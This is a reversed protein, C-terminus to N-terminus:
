IQPSGASGPARDAAQSTHKERKSRDRIRRGKEYLAALNGDPASCNTTAARYGSKIAKWAKGSLTDVKEDLGALCRVLELPILCSYLEQWAFSVPRRPMQLAAAQRLYAIAKGFEQRRLRYHQGLYFPAEAREPDLAFARSWWKTSCALDSLYRECVEGAKLMANYQEEDIKGAPALGGEMSEHETEARRVFLELAKHMHAAGQGRDKEGLARALEQQARLFIAGADKNPEHRRACGEAAEGKLCTSASAADVVAAGAGPYAAELWPTEGTCDGKVVMGHARLREFCVKYGALPVDKMLDGLFIESHLMFNNEVVYAEAHPFRGTAWQRAYRYEGFFMRDNVWRPLESHFAPVMAAGHGIDIPDKYRVDLRFLGVREYRTGSREMAGWVREISHWQKIMSDMATPWIWQMGTPFFQRFHTVNRARHFDQETDTVLTLRPSLLQVDDPFIPANIEKNIPNRNTTSSVNYTHAFLDCGSNVSVVHELISPMAVAKFSRALGFFLLACPAASRVAKDASARGQWSVGPPPPANKAPSSHSRANRALCDGVSEGCALAPLVAGCTTTLPVLAGRALGLGSSAVASDKLALSYFPKAWVDVQPVRPWAVRAAVAYMKEKEAGKGGFHIAVPFSAPPNSRKWRRCMDVLVQGEAMRGCKTHRGNYGVRKKATFGIEEDLQMGYASLFLRSNHDIGMQLAERLPQGAREHAPPFTYRAYLHCILAQDGGVVYPDWPGLNEPPMAEINQIPGVDRTVRDVFTTREDRAAELLAAVEPLFGVMVGSNLWPMATDYTPEPWASDCAANKYMLSERAPSCGKESSFLIKQKSELTRKVLKFPSGTVLVDYADVFFVLSHTSHDGDLGTDIADVFDALGWLKDLYRDREFQRQRGTGVVNLRFGWAAASAAMICFGKNALDTAYTVMYVRFTQSHQGVEISVESFRPASNGHPIGSVTAFFFLACLWTSM